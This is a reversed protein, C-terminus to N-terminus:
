EDVVEATVREPLASADQAHGTRQLRVVRELEATLARTHSIVDTTGRETSCRSRLFDLDSLLEAQSTLAGMIACIFREIESIVREQRAEISSVGTEDKLEKAYVNVLSPSVGFRRAIAAHTESGEAL